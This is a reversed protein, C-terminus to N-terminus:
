PSGPYKSPSTFDYTADPTICLDLAIDGRHVDDISEVPPFFSLGVKLCDPRCRSLFRDYFGKGYGVRHGQADFCILPVITLDIEEAGLVNGLPEPIRWPGEILPTDAFYRVAELQSTGPDIRPATTLIHPFSGWVANFIASTEVEGSGQIALYCNLAKLPGFDVRDLLRETVAANLRSREEPGLSRRRELYVKRLEAKTM